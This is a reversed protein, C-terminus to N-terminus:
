ASGPCRFGYFDVGIAVSTMGANEFILMSPPMRPDITPREGPINGFRTRIPSPEDGSGPLLIWLPKDTQNSLKLWFSHVNFAKDRAYKLHRLEIPVNKAAAGQDDSGALTLSPTTALALSISAIFAFQLMM